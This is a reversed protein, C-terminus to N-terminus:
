KPICDCSYSTIRKTDGIHNLVTKRLEAISVPKQVFDEVRISPLVKDFESKHIEFSSMLLIKFDPNIKYIEKALEFGTPSPMRIDSVVMYYDNPHERFHELAQSSNTFEDVLINNGELGKKIIITIDQEDDISIVSSNTKASAKCGYAAKGQIPLSINPSKYLIAYL